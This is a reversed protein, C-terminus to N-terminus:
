AYIEEKVDDFQAKVLNFYMGNKNILDKHKGSEVIKGDDFVFINDANKVTSLRHAIILTTRNQTFRELSEQILRESAADVSSTAEDLILFPADKLIARAISLRQREGGSLTTGREGIITKYGNPLNSIFSHANAMKAAKKIEEFRADPKVIRLNEEVTGYFLYTEQFVVSIQSRLYEISLDKIDNEGFYISGIQPDFFRLILNVVTSKGAGSKGVIAVTEGCNINFSVNNLADKKEDSYTFCVDKFVIDPLQNSSFKMIPNEKEVVTIPEDLVEFVDKAASFGLFSSHWFNNLDNIPRFCEVVLFLVVFLSSLQMQGNAVRWAGIAVSFAYGAGAALIIVGSDLLSITTERIAKDCFYKADESLEEGKKRSANFVKLTTMGQMSDIYQANLVSYAQWYGLIYKKVLPVSIQPGFVAIIIGITIILGVVWDLKWVYVTIFAASLLVIFLQPIYNILFFELSEVGDTILSQINGSRNNNMYSPGLNMIKDILKERIKSKVTCAAKKSYGENLYILVSRIIICIATIFIMKFLYNLDGKDFVSSVGRAMAFAQCVYSATIVLGIFVKVCIEKKIEGAFHCLRFYFNVM